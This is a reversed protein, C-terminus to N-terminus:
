LGIAKLAAEATKYTEYHGAELERVARLLMPTAELPRGQEDYDVAKSAGRRPSSKNRVRNAQKRVASM